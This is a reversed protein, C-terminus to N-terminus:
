LGEFATVRNFYAVSYHEIEVRSQWMHLGLTNISPLHLLVFLEWMFWGIHIIKNPIERGGGGGQKNICVGTQVSYYLSRSEEHVEFILGTAMTIKHQNGFSM